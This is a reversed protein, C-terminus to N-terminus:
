SSGEASNLMGQFKNEKFVEFVTKNLRGSYVYPLFVQEPKTMEVMIMTLQAYLWDHLVRWAIRAAQEKAWPDTNFRKTLVKATVQDRLVQRVKQLEAPLKIFLDGHETTLLFALGAPQGADDFDKAIKRAGFAALMREIEAISRSVPVDTSACKIRKFSRESM